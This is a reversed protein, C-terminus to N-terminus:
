SGSLHVSVKITEAPKERCLRLGHEIEELPIRHTILAKM